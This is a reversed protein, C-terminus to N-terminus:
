IHTHKLPSVSDSFVFHQVSWWWMPAVSQLVNMNATNFESQPAPILALARVSISKLRDKDLFFVLGLDYWLPFIKLWDYSQFIGTKEYRRKKPNATQM